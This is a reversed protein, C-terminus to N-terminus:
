PRLNALCALVRVAQAVGGTRFSAKKDFL